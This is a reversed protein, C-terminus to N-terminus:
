GSPFGLSAGVIGGTSFSAEPPSDYKTASSSCCEVSYVRKKPPIYVQHSM